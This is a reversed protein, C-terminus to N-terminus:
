DVTSMAACACGVGKDDEEEGELGSREAVCVCWVSGNM